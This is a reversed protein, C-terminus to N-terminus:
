GELIYKGNENKYNYTKFTAKDLDKKLNEEKYEGIEKGDLDYLKGNETYGEKTNVVVNKNEDYTYGYLKSVYEKDTGNNDKIEEYIKDVVDHKVRVKQSVEKKDEPKLILLVATVVIVIVLIIGVIILVKKDKLM